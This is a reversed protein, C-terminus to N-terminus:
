HLINTELSSQSQKAQLAICWLIMPIINGIQFAKIEHRQDLAKYTRPEANLMTVIPAADHTVITELSAYEFKRSAVHTILTVDDM